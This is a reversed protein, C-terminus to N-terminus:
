SNRGNDDLESPPESSLPEDLLDWAPGLMELDFWELFSEWSRDSPWIAPDTYWGELKIEFMDDYNDRVWAWSDDRYDFQPILFADPEERVDDLSVKHVPDHSNVWAV